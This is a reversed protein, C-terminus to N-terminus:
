RKLEDMLFAKVIKAMEPTMEGLAGRGHPPLHAVAEHGAGFVYHDFWARWIAREREPLDRISMIAHMLAKFPSGRWPKGTLDWWYNVLVNFPDLAEVHHWWMYPIFVADGPELDASEATELADAFRPHRDLDPDRLDVMSVPPGAFTFDFPGVYINSVQEPPLFTFRRRGGVVVAVNQSLDFHTSVTAKNGIWIRAVASEDVVDVANERAFGPVHELIPVAGAYFAPPQAEDRTALIADLLEALPALRQEYNFGRMDERYWFRGKIHPPGLFAPAPKGLDFGRLYDFLAEPSQRAARVAPWDAALGRLVAPRKLPAIEACFQERTVQHWERTKSFEAM